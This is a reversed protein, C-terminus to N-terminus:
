GQSGKCAGKCAKCGVGEVLPAAAAVRPYLVFLLALLVPAALLGFEVGYHSAAAHSFGVPLIARALLGALGRREWLLGASLVLLTGVLRSLAPNHCYAGRSADFWAGAIVVLVAVTIALSDLALRRM